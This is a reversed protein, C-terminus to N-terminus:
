AHDHRSRDPRSSGTVTEPHTRRDFAENVIVSGDHARIRCAVGPLRDALRVSAAPDMVCFATALADADACSPAVVTAGAVTRVPQGSRPDLLHPHWQGGIRFGRLRVGSTAVAGEAIHVVADAPANDAADAPDPVAVALPV